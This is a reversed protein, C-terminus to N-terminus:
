RTWWRASSGEAGPSGGGGPSNCWGRTPSSTVDKGPAERGGQWPSLTSRTRSRARRRTSCSTSSSSSRITTGSPPRSCGKLDYADLADRSEPRARPPVLGGPEPTSPRRPVAPAARRGSRSRCRPRAGFMYKVKATQNAIQDMAIGAFDVYMLEAVPRMGAPRLGPRLRHHGGGLHPIACGSRGSSRCSGRRLRTAAASSRSTRGLLYVSPDRKMEERLSEIVAERYTIKRM